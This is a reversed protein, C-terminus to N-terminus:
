RLQAQEFRQCAANARAWEGRRAMEILAAVAARESETVQGQEVAKALASEVRDLRDSNQSNCATRLAQLLRVGEASSLKPPRSCGTLGGSVGLLLVALVVARAVAPAVARATPASRSQEGQSRMM